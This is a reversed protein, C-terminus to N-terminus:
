PRLTISVTTDDTVAIRAVADRLLSQKEAFPLTDWEDLLRSVDRERTRKRENANVHEDLRREAAEIADEASLRDAAAAVSLKHM